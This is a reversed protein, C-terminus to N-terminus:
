FLFRCLVTCRETAPMFSLLGDPTPRRGAIRAPARRPYDAALLSTKPKGKKRLNTLQARLAAASHRKSHCPCRRCETSDNGRATDDPQATAGCCPCHAAATCDLYDATQFRDPRASARQDCRRTADGPVAEPEACCDCHCTAALVAQLPAPLIMAVVAVMAVSNRLYCMRQSM